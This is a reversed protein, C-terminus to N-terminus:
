YLGSHEYTVPATFTKNYNQQSASDLLPHDLEAAASNYTARLLNSKMIEYHQPQIVDQKIQISKLQIIIQIQKLSFKSEHIIIRVEKDRSSKNHVPM